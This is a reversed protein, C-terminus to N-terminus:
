PRVSLGDHGSGLFRGSVAELLRPDLPGPDEREEAAVSSAIMLAALFGAAARVRFQKPDFGRVPDDEREQEPAVEEGSDVV